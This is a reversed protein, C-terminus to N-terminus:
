KDKDDDIDMSDDDSSDDGGPEVDIDMSSATLMFILTDLSGSLEGDKLVRGVAELKEPSISSPDLASILMLGKDSCLVAEDEVAQWVPGVTAWHHALARSFRKGVNEAIQGTKALSILTDKAKEARLRNRFVYDIDSFFSDLLKLVGVDDENLGEVLDVFNGFATKIDADWAALNFKARLKHPPLEPSVAQQSMDISNGDTKKAGVASAAQARNSHKSPVRAQLVRTGKAQDGNADIPWAKCRFEGDIYNEDVTGDLKSATAIAEVEYHVMYKQENVWKKVPEEISKLHEKNAWGTIPFLNAEEGPGGLNDNLLHGRVYKKESDGSTPLKSLLDVQQSPVSGQPHGPGLKNAVMKKGMKYGDISQLSFSVDWDDSSGNVDELQGASGMDNLKITAKPNIELELRPEPTGQGVLELRRLGRREQLEPLQAEVEDVSDSHAILAEAERFASALDWEMQKRDRPDDKADKPIEVGSWDTGQLSDQIPDSLVEDTSGGLAGDAGTQRTIDQTDLM